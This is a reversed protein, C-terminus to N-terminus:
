QILQELLIETQLQPQPLPTTQPQLIPQEATRIEVKTANFISHAKAVANALQQINTFNKAQEYALAPEIEYLTENPIYIDHSEEGHFWSTVPLPWPTLLNNRAIAAATTTAILQQM